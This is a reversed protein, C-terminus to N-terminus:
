GAPVRASLSKRKAREDSIGGAAAHAEIADAISAPTLLKDSMERLFLASALLTVALMVRTILLEVPPKPRRRSMSMSKLLITTLLVGLCM